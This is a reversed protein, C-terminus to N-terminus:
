ILVGNVIQKNTPTTHTLTNNNLQQLDINFVTGLELMNENYTNSTRFTDLNGAGWCYCSNGMDNIGRWIIGNSIGSYNLMSSPLCTIYASPPKNVGSVIVDGIAVCGLPMIPQWVSFIQGDQNLDSTWILKYDSPYYISSCIYNICKKGFIDTMVNSTIAKIDIPQNSIHMYQGLPTYSTNNYQFTQHMFVSIYKTIRDNNDPSALISLKYNLIPTSIFEPNNDTIFHIDNTPLNILPLLPENTNQFRDKLKSNQYLYISFVIVTLILLIIYAIKM